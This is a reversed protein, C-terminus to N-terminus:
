SLALAQATEIAASAAYRCAADGDGLPPYYTM